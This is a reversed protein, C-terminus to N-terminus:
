EGAGRYRDGYTARMRKKDLKGVSTRPLEEVIEIHDPLQWKAFSKSLLEHVEELTVPDAPDTVVVPLPREQWQPHPVGVVGADKIKPHSILLNEMDISSIWEGGSKVVDKIRDTLKLYGTPYIKGVDGSRWYGDMFRAAAEEPSEELRYYSSIIWPGRLLVEGQAEGDFPLDNGDADVLRFDVGNLMLGQNRKLDWRQDDDFADGLTAKVGVNTAVMPTTETAGYAHIVDAGTIEKFDRMLSVPPETAGSLLRARSFDPKEDLTKIYNMMPQFIAPAGNAVTVQENIMADVLVSTDDATYRGPLVVKAAALVSSHVLGWCNGHFMPTILCVSDEASMGLNTAQSMTHLYMGRHSYYVGKPRGTTGTTYCAGYASTEDIMPWDYTTPQQALLDDLHRVNPLTTSLDGLPKDSMVIWGEVGPAHPALQEALPLLSEDVLVFRAGSHTTVYGLDETGLRLNMQLLVAGVAPISWYLEFFRRSNWDLVGIVDGPRVGIADFLNAQQAIRAFAEAYTYREWDGEATRYVIQQEPYTRAAHRILTTTNLQYDDGHTSPRGKIIDM